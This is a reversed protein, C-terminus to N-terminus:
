RSAGQGDRRPLLRRAAAAHTVPDLQFDKVLVRADGEGDLKLSILTNAGSESHLIQLLAKPISPSRRRRADGGEPATSSPRCRGTARAAGRRTRASRTARQNSRTDSGHRGETGISQDSPEDGQESEARCLCRLCRRRRTFARSRRGSCARWRSCWSRAARPARRSLPITNTVILKDIPSKEIRDIAPGSLVGHVACAIVRAAGNDKLAQAGEHDDRGHRHHRGAIICTRGRRRRDREDSGGHWRRQAAQRHGGARSSASSAIMSLRRLSSPVASTIFTIPSTSPRVQMMWSSM